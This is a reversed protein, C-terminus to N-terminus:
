FYASGRLAAASSHLAGAPEALHRGSALGGIQVAAQLPAPPLARFCPLKAVTQQQLQTKLLDPLPAWSDSHNALEVNSFSWM